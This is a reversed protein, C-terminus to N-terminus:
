VALLLDIQALGRALDQLFRAAPAGDVAQHDITLSLSFQKSFQVEGSVKVPKLSIGGVGLIAVQPPNLIPTFSEIELSGLNTVTFTGNSMEAPAITGQHCAATLRKCETSIQILSLRDAAFIVPAMLGRPTDVAFALNVSNFRRVVGEIFLANLDLHGRLVRSVVFHILDGLTIEQLGLPEDSAKLRERYKLMAEADASRTLSLQATTQLSALLREAIVRRVGQVPISEYDDEEQQPQTQAAGPALDAAFIRGRPGTGQPPADYGGQAVMRRALPTMVPQREVAARVDREIIRGQPGSGTLTSVDVLNQDALRRARPSIAPERYEVSSHSTPGNTSERADPEPPATPEASSENPAGAPRLAEVSEGPEGIAAINTFVPIEAGEEFFLALMLGSFASDVAMVAKDTEIECLADGAEVQDGIRKKWSVLVCSEVNNGPKPMVVAQAM